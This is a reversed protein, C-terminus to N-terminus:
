NNLLQTVKETLPKSMQHGELGQPMLAWYCARLKHGVPPCIYVRHKGPRRLVCVPGLQPCNSPLFAPPPSSYKFLRRAAVLVSNLLDAGYLELQIYLKRFLVVSIIEAKLSQNYPLQTRPM